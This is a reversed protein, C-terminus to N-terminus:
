GVVDRLNVLTYGDATLGEIICSLADADLTSGDTPNAGVHMLVIQGPVAADLVRQCVTNADRTGGELGKWGLTDVSWRFPIYGEGNVVKIDLAARDGYPFRFLPKTTQGTLASISAEAAALEARIVANTSTSFAPHTDSHNGVPYGANSMARVSDPYNRAFQGTAFFTATVGYRSLTNLISTVGTNSAGGDFTLAAVRGSDPLTEWDTGAWGSPLSSPPQTTAPPAPTTPRPAPTTPRPAQTTPPPTTVEVAPPTTSETPSSPVPSATSPRTAPAQSTAITTGSETPDPSGTGCAVLFVACTIAVVITVAHNTTGM